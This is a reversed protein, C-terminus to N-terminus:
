MRSKAREVSNHTEDLEAGIAQKSRMAARIAAYSELQAITASFLGFTQAVAAADYPTIKLGNNLEAVFPACDSRWFPLCSIDPAYQDLAELVAAIMSGDLLPDTAPDYDHALCHLLTEKSKTAVCQVKGKM